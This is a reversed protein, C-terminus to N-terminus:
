KLPNLKLFETLHKIVDSSFNTKNLHEFESYLRVFIDNQLIDVYNGQLVNKM